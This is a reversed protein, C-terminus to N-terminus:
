RRQWAPRWMRALLRDRDILTHKVVALVHVGVLTALVAATVQHTGNFLAYLVKDDGGWPALRITNFFKVGHKSFNSALYGSLPM